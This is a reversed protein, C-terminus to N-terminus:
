PANYTNDGLIKSRYMYTQDEHTEPSNPDDYNGLNPNDQYGPFPIISEYIDSQPIRRDPSPEQPGEYDMRAEPHVRQPSACFGEPGECIRVFLERRVGSDLYAGRINSIRIVGNSKGACTVPETIIEDYDIRPPQHVAVGQQTFICGDGSQVNVTYVGKRLNTFVVSSNCEMLDKVCVSNSYNALVNTAVQGLLTVTYPPIGGSITVSVEGDEGNYCSVSKSGIQAFISPGFPPEPLSELVTCGNADVVTMVYTDGQFHTSAALPVRIINEPDTELAVEMPLQTPVGARTRTIYAVYPPTGGTIEVVYILKSSIGCGHNETTYKFKLNKPQKIEIKLTRECLMNGDYLELIYKGSSLNTVCYRGQVSTRLTRNGNLINVTQNPIASPPLGVNSNFDFQVYQSNTIDFLQINSTTEGNQINICVSGNSEGTCRVDSILVPVEQEKVNDCFNSM